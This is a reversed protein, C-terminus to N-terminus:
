KGKILKYYVKYHRPSKIEYVYDWRLCKSELSVHLRGPPFAKGKLGKTGRWVRNLQIM